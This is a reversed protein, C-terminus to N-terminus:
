DECSTQTNEIKILRVSSTYPVAFETRQVEQETHFDGIFRVVVNDVNIMVWQWEYIPEPRKICLKEAHKVAKNDVLIGDTIEINSIWYHFYFRPELGWFKYQGDSDVTYYNAWDPAHDPWALKAPSKFKTVDFDVLDEDITASSSTSYKGRLTWSFSEGSNLQKRMKKLDKHDMFGLTSSCRNITLKMIDITKTNNM